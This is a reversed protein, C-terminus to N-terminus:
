GGVMRLRPKAAPALEALEAYSSALRQHIEAIEPDKARAAAVRAQAARTAYYSSDNLGPM